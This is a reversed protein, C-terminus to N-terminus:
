GALHCVRQATQLVFLALRRFVAPQGPSNDSFRATGSEDRVEYSFVSGARPALSVHNSTPSHLDEQIGRAEVIASDSLKLKRGGNCRVGGQENVLVSLRAGPTAGSRQVIFLDPPQFGGCGALLTATALSVVAARAGRLARLRGVRRRVAARESM